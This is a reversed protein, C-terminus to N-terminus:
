LTCLFPFSKSKFHGLGAEIEYIDDSGLHLVYDDESNFDSGAWTRATDVQAPWGPPVTTRRNPYYTQLYEVRDRFTKPSPIWEIDPRSVEEDVAEEYTHSQNSYYACMISTSEAPQIWPLAPTLTLPIIDTYTTPQWSPVAVRDKSARVLVLSLSRTTFKMSGLRFGDRGSSGSILYGGM